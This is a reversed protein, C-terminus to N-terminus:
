KTPEGCFCCWECPDSPFYERIIEETKCDVLRFRYTKNKKVFKEHISIDGCSSDVYSNEWLGGTKSLFELKYKKM